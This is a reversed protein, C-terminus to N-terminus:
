YLNSCVELAKGTQLGAIFILVKLADQQSLSLAEQIVSMRLEQESM